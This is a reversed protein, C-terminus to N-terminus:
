AHPTFCAEPYLLSPSFKHILFGFHTYTNSPQQGPGTSYHLLQNSVSGLTVLSEEEQEAVANSKNENLGCLGLGVVVVWLIVYLLVVILARTTTYDKAQLRYVALTM